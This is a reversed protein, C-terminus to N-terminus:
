QIKTHNKHFERDSIYIRTGRYLYFYHSTGRMKNRGKKVNYQKKTDINEFRGLSRINTLKKM